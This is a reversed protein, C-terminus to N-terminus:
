NHKIFLRGGVQLPNKLGKLLYERGQLVAEVLCEGRALYAAIAASLTCGSGHTDVNNVRPSSFTKLSGDKQALIDYVNEGDMHGGKLLFSTQFKEVLIKAVEILEDVKKPREGTLAETEDPNPTVM